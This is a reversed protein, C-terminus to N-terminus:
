PSFLLFWKIFIIIIIIMIKIYVITYYVSFLFLRSFSRIFVVTPTRIIEMNIKSSETCARKAFLIMLDRDLMIQPSCM